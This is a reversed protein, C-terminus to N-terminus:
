PSATPRRRWPRTWPRWRSPTDGARTEAETYLAVQAAALDRSVEEVVGGLRVGRKSQTDRRVLTVQDSALDRPGVELRVPVGKLEWDVSRRGFSTGVRDDLRVRHGAARLEDVLTNAAQRTGEEDRVLLVVVHVPSLRPPLRLGADDGHVM